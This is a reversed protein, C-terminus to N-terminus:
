TCITFSITCFKSKLSFFIINHTKDLLDYNQSTLYSLKNVFIYSFHVTALICYYGSFCRAGLTFPEPPATKSGEGRKSHYIEGKFYGSATAVHM